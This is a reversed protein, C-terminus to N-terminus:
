SELEVKQVENYKNRKWLISGVSNRCLVMMAVKSTDYNLPLAEGQMSERSLDQNCKKTEMGGNIVIPEPARTLRIRIILKLRM